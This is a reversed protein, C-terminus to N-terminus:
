AAGRTTWLTCDGTWKPWGALPAGDFAHLAASDTPMVSDAKGDGSVDAIARAGIFALGQLPQVHGGLTVGNEPNWATIASRVRSGLGPLTAVATAVVVDKNGRGSERWARNVSM